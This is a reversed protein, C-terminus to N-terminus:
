HQEPEARSSKATAASPKATKPWASGLQIEALQKLSPQLGLFALVTTLKQLIHLYHKTKILCDSYMIHVVDPTM